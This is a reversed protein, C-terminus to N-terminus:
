ARAAGKAEISSLMPISRKRPIHCPTSAPAVRTNRAGSVKSAISNTSPGEASSRTCAAAAEFRIATLQDLGSESEM